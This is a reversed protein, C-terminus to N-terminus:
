QIDAMVSDQLLVWIQSAWSLAQLLDLLTVERRSKGLYYKFLNNTRLKGQVCTHTIVSNRVYVCVFICIYMCVCRRYESIWSQSLLDAVSSYFRRDNALASTFYLVELFNLINQNKQAPEFFFHDLEIFQIAPSFEVLCM